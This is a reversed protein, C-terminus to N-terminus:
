RTSEKSEVGKCDVSKEVPEPLKIEAPWRVACINTAKYYSRKVMNSQNGGFGPFVAGPKKLDEATCDGDAFTVHNGSGSGCKKAHVHVVAGRPIGDTKWKVEQGYKAWNKALSGNSIWQLGTESNMVAIFLGCWAFSAGVITKAWPLKVIRWFSSMWKNFKPDTEKKGEHKKAELYAPNEETM